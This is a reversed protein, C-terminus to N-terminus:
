EPRPIDVESPEVEADGSDWKLWADIQVMPFSKEFAEEGYVPDFVVANEAAWERLEDSDMVVDEWIQDLTNVVEDPVGKPVFIGFYIPAAQFDEVWDTIPPIPEDYGSIELPKDALVALPRLDGSRIMDVQEVSLQPVVDTEGGVTAVVAPNGGDYTVHRYEIDTYSKILEMATHGASNEGATAVPIEGPNEEFADLLDGFDEYPTDPNVSVVNPMAVNLYLHWDDLTTDLLGQVKYVGLDKVAGATWTLGDKEANLAEQTGVSGSAGAQNVIVISTGLEEEVIGATTRASRDTSGGADWPVILNIPRDPQWEYGEEEAEGSAFAAGAILMLALVLVLAKKM